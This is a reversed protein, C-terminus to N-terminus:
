LRQRQPRGGGVALFLPLRAQGLSPPPHPHRGPSDPGRVVRERGARRRGPCRAQGHSTPSGEAESSWASSQDVVHGRPRVGLRDGRSCPPGRACYTVPGRSTGGHFYTPVNLPLPGAAPLRGLLPRSRPGPPCGGWAPSSLLFGAFGRKGPCVRCLSRPAGPPPTPTPRGGPPAAGRAAGGPARDCSDRRSGRGLLRSLGPSPQGRLWSCDSWVGVRFMGSAELRAALPRVCPEPPRSEHTVDAPGGAAGWPGRPPAWAGSWGRRGWARPEAAVSCAM